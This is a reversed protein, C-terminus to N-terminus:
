PAVLTSKHGAAALKSQLAVVAERSAVPGARVRFLEKGGSRVASQEVQYGRARLQKVLRDANDRSSFSGLQAWWKGGRAAATAPPATTDATRAQVPKSSEVPKPVVPKAAVPKATTATPKTTTAVSVAPVPTASSPEATIAESPKTAVPKTDEIAPTVAPKPPPQAALENPAATQPVLASQDTQRPTAGSNLEMTYTHLPPGADVDAPVAGSSAPSARNRGSFLEPVIIVMMGILIIAGTLREKAAIEV